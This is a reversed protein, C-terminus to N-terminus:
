PVGGRKRLSPFGIPPILRGREDRAWNAPDRMDVAPSDYPKPPGFRWGDCLETVHPAHGAPALSPGGPPAQHSTNEPGEGTSVKELHLPPPLLSNPEQVGQGAGQGIQNDPKREPGHKDYNQPKQARGKERGKKDASAGLGVRPSVLIKLERKDENGAKDRLALNMRGLTDLATRIQKITPTDLRKGREPQDCDLLSALRAYSAYVVGTKFDSMAVLELYLWRVWAPLLRLAIVEEDTLAAFTPAEHRSLAATRVLKM